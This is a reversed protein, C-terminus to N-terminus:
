WTIRNGSSQKRKGTAANGFLQKYWGKGLDEGTPIPLPALGELERLENELAMQKRLYSQLLNINVAEDKGVGFLAEKMGKVDADTPRIEGQAKLAARAAEEAFSDLEEDFAGQDTYIGPILKAAQRSKGSEAGSTFADLFNTAKDINERRTASAEQLDEVRKLQAKTLTKENSALLKGAADYRKQGESLTFDEPAEADGLERIPNGQADTLYLKGGIEITGKKGREFAEERALRAATAAAAQENIGHEYAEGMNQLNQQGSASAYKAAEIKRARDEESRARRADQAKLLGRSWADMRTQGRERPASLMELMMRSQEPSGMGVIGRGLSEGEGVFPAAKVPMNAAAEIAAARKKQEEILAMMEALTPATGQENM